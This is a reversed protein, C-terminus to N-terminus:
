AKSRIISDHNLLTLVEKAQNLHRKEHNVIIDFATSLKYVIVKSAPSSISTKLFPGSSTILKKLEDQHVEFKRLIDDSLNSKQPEWINFTKMRKSRDPQVGKLVLNGFFDTLFGLKGIWPSKYENSQLKKLIPFYSENTIILHQINQAISWTNGDPKWNLEDGSLHEFESIFANTTKDIDTIWTNM